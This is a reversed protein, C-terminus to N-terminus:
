ITEVKEISKFLREIQREMKHADGTTYTQCVSSNFSYNMEIFERIPRKSDHINGKYIKRFVDEVLPFHTCGLILDTAELIPTLENRLYTELDLNQNLGEIINVLEPLALEKVSGSGKEHILNRYAHANFTALTSVIGVCVDDTLDIQGVTLEIIGILNMDPFHKRVTTLAVASVTNCAIVVDLIERDHFWQMANITYGIIADDSQNGYPAHKQDAYLVLSAPDLNQKLYQYVSYGGLGSDFIGLTSIKKM